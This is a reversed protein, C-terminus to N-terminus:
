LLGSLFLYSVYNTIIISSCFSNGHMGGGGGGRGSFNVDFMGHPSSFMAKINKSLCKWNSANSYM